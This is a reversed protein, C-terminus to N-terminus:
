IPFLCNVVVQGKQGAGRGLSEPRPISEKSVELQHLGQHLVKLLSLIELIQCTLKSRPKSCDTTYFIVDDGAMLVCSCLYIAKM